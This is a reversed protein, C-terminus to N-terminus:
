WWRCLREATPEARPDVADDASDPALAAYVGIECVRHTIEQAADPHAAHSFVWVLFWHLTM